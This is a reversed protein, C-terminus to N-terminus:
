GSLHLHVKYMFGLVAMKDLHDQAEQLVLVGQLALLALVELLVLVGQLAQAEQLVLVEQAELLDLVEQLVLHLM